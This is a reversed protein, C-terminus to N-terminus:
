RTLDVPIEVQVQGAQEFTLTLGVVNGQVLPANLGMLMIHDGGRKLDHTEGAAIVIGGEIRMMRMVGNEGEKNSHLEVRKAIDSQVGVLRDDQAGTNRITLFIGGTVSKPTASRAYAGEIEIPGGALATTAISFAAILAM